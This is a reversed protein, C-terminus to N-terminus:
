QRIRHIEFSRQLKLIWQTLCYKTFTAKNPIFARNTDSIVIFSLPLKFTPGAFIDGLKQCQLLLVLEWKIQIWIFNFMISILGLDSLVRLHGWINWVPLLATTHRKYIYSQYLVTLIMWFVCLLSWETYADLWHSITNCQLVMEWQSPVYVSYDRCLLPSMADITFKFDSVM